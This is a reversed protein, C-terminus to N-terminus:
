WDGMLRTLLGGSDDDTESQSKKILEEMAEHEAQIDEVTQELENIEDRLNSLDNHRLERKVSEESDEAMGKMKAGIEAWPNQEELAEEAKEASRKAQYRHKEAKEVKNEHKEQMEEIEDALKEREDEVVGELYRKKQELQGVEGFKEDVTGQLTEVQEELEDLRDLVEQNNAPTALDDRNWKVWHRGDETLRYEVPPEPADGTYDPSQRTVVLGAPSLHERRRYSIRNRSDMDVGTRRALERTKLWDGAEYLAVLIQESLQDIKQEDFSLPSAM